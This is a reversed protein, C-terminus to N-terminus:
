ARLSGSVQKALTKEIKKRVKELEADTLARDPATFTLRYALSKNGAGIQEGTFGDFLAAGTVLPGAGALLAAEVEAAPRDADVVIAFDQEVPLYRYVPVQTSTTAAHELLARLDLEAVVVRADEIGAHEALAPRLEGLVGVSADGISIAATRGPHLAPHMAKAWSTGTVGLRQLLEDIVGKADFYDLQDAAGSRPHFRSFPERDGALLLGLTSPEDPLHDPETGLYVHAIEFLRLSREHKLNEAAAAVLAPILTPRLRDREAQIPNVLKVLRELPIPHAFGVRECSGFLTLTEVAETVYSRAEFMGAGVLITRARREFGHVPDREAVPTAGTILTEPLKDYGVMRAVEEVIDEAITVDPRWTPVQVTLTEHAGDLEPAFELRALVDLVIEPAVAMGLVREIKALPMALTRPQVPKPYVDQWGRVTAGPCLDLILRTARAAAEGALNPDLGREFRASAETRLKLARATHRVSLMDFNAAELLLATTADSIESNVGGMVGAVGVPGEGDTILLAENNFTREVHDLTEMREGEHARRVIIRGGRVDNLDFAHLPQGVELMVYNTVDVINSIPRVGAATLRQALWDPSPAVKVGDIVVGVYRRCLDPADIRILDDRESALEALDVTNLAKVSEHTIAGAERAIGRVSFAHVLNPTIEFEIVTDGLWESLPMGAPAAPDLVLIGEHENSLGLEKESCVMGESRVGRITGPKLTKYKLEESYGDILRAGALALAVKQGAAINPAGTVVTLRHAGAAVDALVLRDADPHQKVSMVEGVYVKDWADGTREIREAELGALTLRNALEEPSLGTEVLDNLWRMPVKM